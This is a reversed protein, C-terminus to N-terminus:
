NDTTLQRSDITAKMQWLKLVLDPVVPSSRCVIFVKMKRGMKGREVRRSKIRLM